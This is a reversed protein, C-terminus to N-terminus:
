VKINDKGIFEKENANSVILKAIEDTKKAIENTTSAINANQQTKQDLQNLAINIQEIGNQQEKSSSEIDTILEITNSINKNLGDYGS